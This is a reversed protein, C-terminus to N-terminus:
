SVISMLVRDFFRDGFWKRMFMLPRAMASVVYRTRPRNSRIARSITNAIVSPPSVSVSSEGEGNRALAQVIENYPGNMSEQPITTSVVNGFETAILGPEIFIVDNFFYDGLADPPFRM